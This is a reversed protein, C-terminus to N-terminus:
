ARRGGGNAGPLHVAQTGRHPPLVGSQTLAVTEEVVRGLNAALLAGQRYTESNHFAWLAAELAQVIGGGGTIEPPQRRAYSGEYVALVEPRTSATLWLDRSPRLVESKGRGSLALHVMAALM